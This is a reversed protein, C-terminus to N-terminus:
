LKGEEVKIIKENKIFAYMSLGESIVRSNFGNNIYYSTIENARDASIINNNGDYYHDLRYNYTVVIYKETEPRDEAVVDIKWVKYTNMTYVEGPINIDASIIGGSFGQNKYINYLYYTDGIRSRDFITNSQSYPFADPRNIINNFNSITPIIASNDNRHILRSTYDYLNNEIGYHNGGYPSNPFTLCGDSFQNFSINLIESQRSVKYRVYNTKSMEYKLMKNTFYLVKDYESNSSEVSKGSYGFHKILDNESKGVFYYIGKSNVTACASLLLIIILIFVVYSFYKKM